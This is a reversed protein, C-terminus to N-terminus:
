FHTHEGAEFLLYSHMFVNDYNDLYGLSEILFKLCHVSLHFSPQLYHMFKFLFHSLIELIDVNKM